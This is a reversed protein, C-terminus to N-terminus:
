TTGGPTGPAPTVTSILHFHSRKFERKELLKLYHQAMELANDLSDDLDEATFSQTLRSFHVRAEYVNKEQFAIVGLFYLAGPHNGPGALIRSFAQKAEKLSGIELHFRGLEMLTSIEPGPEPGPAQGQLRELQARAHALFETPNVPHGEWQPFPILHIHGMRTQEEASLTFMRAALLEAFLDSLFRADPEFPLAQGCKKCLLDQPTWLDHPQPVQRQEIREEDVYLAELEYHYAGGCAPCTLRLTPYVPQPAPEEPAAQLAQPYPRQHVDCIFRILQQLEQEGERYHHVLPALFRPDPLHTMLELFAPYHHNILPEFHALLLEMPPPGGSRRLVELCYDVSQRRGSLLYGALRPQLAAVLREMLQPVPLEWPQPLVQEFPYDVGELQGTLLKWLADKEEDRLGNALPAAALGGAGEGGRDSLLALVRLMFEPSLLPSQYIRAIRLAEQQPAALCQREVHNLVAVLPLSVILHYEAERVKLIAEPWAPVWARCGELFAHYPRVQEEDPVLGAILDHALPLFREIAPGSNRCAALEHLLAATRANPAEVGVVRLCEQYVANLPFGGGLRAQLYRSLGPRGILQVLTQTLLVDHFVERPERYAQALALIQEPSQAHRCLLRFLTAYVAHNARCSPLRKLLAQWQETGPYLLVGEALAELETSNAEADALAAELKHLLLRQAPEYHLQGLTLGAALALGSENAQFLRLLPFAYAELRYNGILTIASDRIEPMPSAWLRDVFQPCQQQWRHVLHYAAWMRVQPSDADLRSLLFPLSLFDQVPAAEGGPQAPQPLGSPPLSGQPAEPADKVAHLRRQAPEVVSETGTSGSDVM